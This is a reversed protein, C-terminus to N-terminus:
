GGIGALARMACHAKFDRVFGSILNFIVWWAGGGVVMNKHGYVAGVTGGLLVFTGQTLPYAAAIWASEVPSAGLSKGISLASTIGAGYSIMQILQTSIISAAIISGKIGSISPLLDPKTEVDDNM